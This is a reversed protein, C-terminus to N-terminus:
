MLIGLPDPNSYIRWVGQTDYSAVLHSPGKSSVPFVSAGHWLLHLM